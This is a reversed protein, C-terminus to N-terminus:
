LHPVLDHPFDRLTTFMLVWLIARAAVYLIVYLAYVIIYVVTPMNLDNFLFLSFLSPWPTCTIAVASIRWLLHELYTPFAFSWAMCHIGGFTTAM